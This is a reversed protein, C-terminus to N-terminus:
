APLASELKINVRLVVTFRKMNKKKKTSQLTFKNNFNTKFVFMSYLIKKHFINM